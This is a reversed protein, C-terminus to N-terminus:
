WHPGGHAPATVAVFFAGVELPTLFPPIKDMDVKEVAQIKELVFAPSAGFRERLGAETFARVHDCYGHIPRYPPLPGRAVLNLM